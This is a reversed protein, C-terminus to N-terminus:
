AARSLVRRTGSVARRVREAAGIGAQRLAQMPVEIGLTIGAPLADVFAGLPLEGTGPVLRDNLAEEFQREVPMEAPGDCLQARGVIAPDLAAIDTVCFGARFLHLSDLQLRAGHGAAAVFAAAQAPSSLPTRRSWETVTKLGCAQAMACFGAFNDALRTLDPDRLLVNACGAGLWAGSDLSPRFAELDTDPKLLFGEIMDIAIGRDRCSQRTEQRMPTDAAMGFDPVGDAPHVLIAISACGNAAALEALAPPSAEIATLFDLCLPHM